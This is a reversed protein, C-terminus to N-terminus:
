YAPFHELRHFDPRDGPVPEAALYRRRDARGHIAFANWSLIPDPLFDGAISARGCWVDSKRTVAYEIPVVSDVIRRVGHLELALWHGAPGFELELYRDGPGVLFLEVVEFEWLGDCRGPPTAPVPDDHCPADVRVNLTRDTESLELRVREDARAPEGNWLRDIRITRV